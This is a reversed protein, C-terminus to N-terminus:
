GPEDATVVWFLLAGEDTEGCLKWAGEDHEAYTEPDEPRHWEQTGDCNYVFGDDIDEVPFNLQLLEVALEPGSVETTVEVWAREEVIGDPWGDILIMPHKTFQTTDM